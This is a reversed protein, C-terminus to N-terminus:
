IESYDGGLLLGYIMEILELPSFPKELLAGRHVIRALASETGPMSGSILICPPEISVERLREIIRLGTLKPMEHDTIILDFNSLCLATWGEEGNRATKAQFGARTVTEAVLELILPDDDIVLIKRPVSERIESSGYSADQDTESKFDLSPSINSSDTEALQLEDFHLQTTREPHM